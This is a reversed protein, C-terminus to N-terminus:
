QEILCYLALHKHKKILIIHCTVQLIPTDNTKQRRSSGLPRAVYESPRNPNLHINSYDPKASDRRNMSM